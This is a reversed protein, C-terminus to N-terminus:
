RRTKAVIPWNGQRVLESTDAPLGFLKEGKFDLEFKPAQQEAKNGTESLVDPANTWERIRNRDNHGESLNL